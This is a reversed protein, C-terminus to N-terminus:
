YVALSFVNLAFSFCTAHINSNCIIKSDCVARKRCLVWHKPVAIKLHYFFIYKYVQFICYKCNFSHKKWRCCRGTDLLRWWHKLRQWHSQPKLTMQDYLEYKNGASMYNNIWKHKLMLSYHICKVKLTDALPIHM